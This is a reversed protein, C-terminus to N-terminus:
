NSEEELSFTGAWIAEPHEVALGLRREVRLTYLNYQFNDEDSDSMEVTIQQRDYITAGLTFNAIIYKNSAVSNSTVVPIGWLTAVAGVTPAGLLYKGDNDKLLSLAMFDVPNLLICEPKVGTAKMKHIAILLFDLLTANSQPLSAIIEATKDTYNGANLLGSLQNTGNGDIIQHEITQQLGYTMKHNIYEALAPADDALQKTIKTFHAFTLVDCKKLTPAAVSSNGKKTNQPAVAANNSLAGGYIYQVTDSATPLHPILQEVNLEVEVPAVVGANFQPPVASQQQIYNSTATTSVSKCETVLRSRRTNDFSKFSPSNVFQNGVTRDSPSVGAMLSLESKSSVAQSLERVQASLKDYDSKCSDMAAKASKVVEETAGIADMLTEANINSM